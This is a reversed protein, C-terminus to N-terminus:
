SRTSRHDGREGKWRVDRGDGAGGGPGGRPQGDRCSVGGKAGEATSAVDATFVPVGARNAEQIATGISKSDCPTLVIASAKRVLFDKVQDKQKSPDVDGSEVVVEFNQKAGEATMSDGMDKFFPNTLTLLSVAVLPKAKAEGSASPAAANSSPGSSSAGGNKSSM